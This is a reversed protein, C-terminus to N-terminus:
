RPQSFAEVPNIAATRPFGAARPQPQRDDFVHRLTVASFQLHLALQSFPGAKRQKERCGAHALLGSRERQLNKMSLVAATSKPM